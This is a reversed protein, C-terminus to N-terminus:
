APAFVEPSGASFRVRGETVLKDLHARVSRGAAHHLRVDVDAYLQKVMAEDKGIGIVATKDSQPTVSYTQAAGGQAKLSVKQKEGEKFRGEQFDVALSYEGKTNKALTLVTADDYKQAMTCYSGQSISAVRSVAWSTKAATAAHAMAPVVLASCGLVAALTLSSKMSTQSKSPQM